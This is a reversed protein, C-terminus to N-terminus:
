RRDGYLQFVAWRVPHRGARISNVQARRLAEDKAVGCRLLTYFDSMLKISSRDGVNWLSAVISRAGAYQFARALGILGEGALPAGTASHCASLTVLDAHIRVREMIEWAYLTGNERKEATQPSASLLLASDLPFREDTIAHNAFHIYRAGRGVGKAVDESAEAGLHLVSKPFLAAIQRAEEESHRLASVGARSPARDAFAVFAGTKQQSARSAVLQSYITGSQVFHLPKAEILYSRGRRLAGFPLKHLPGDPSLLLRDAARVRQEVPKLLLEFIARAERFFDDSPATQEILKRWHDIRARLADEGIRVTAVDLVGDRDLAFVLTERKGV